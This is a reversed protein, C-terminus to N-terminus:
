TLRAPALMEWVKDVMRMMDFPKQLYRDAPLTAFEPDNGAGGGGSMLLVPLGSLSARQFLNGSDIVGHDLLLASVGRGSLRDLAQHVTPVADARVGHAGLLRVLLSGLLEEDDVVLVYEEAITM